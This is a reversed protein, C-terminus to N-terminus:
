VEETGGLWDALWDDETLLLIETLEWHTFPQYAGERLMGRFTESFKGLDHLGALAIFAQKLAFPWPSEIILQEAVVAVDLMHYIAPHELTEPPHASKAPWDLWEKM